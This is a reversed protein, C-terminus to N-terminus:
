RREIIPQCEHATRQVFYGDGLFVLVENSHKVKGRFFGVDSLPVMVEHTSKKSIELLNKGLATYENLKDKLEREIALDQSLKLSLLKSSYALAQPSSEM